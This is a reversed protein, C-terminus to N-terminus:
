RAPLKAGSRVSDVVDRIAQVVAAPEFLHIEHGSGAVVTHRSNRSLRAATAHVDRMEQPSDVGRSLVVVPRDGLLHEQALRAARLEALAAREGEASELVVDSSLMEPISAILRGELAVRREYLERPLKDFPAGTQPQRRPIRLSGPRITTRMQDATLEAIAMAKGQFFTFLRDEHAPDVLVLGAVEDPYRAQYLRVYIGGMSAGVLVYPPKEGAARLAAHLDAVVREPTAVDKRPDSWGHGARDYSCVRNTRAIEPQVLSWDIAFASAGAELIVAPAGAGTCIMHLRRSGVDIRVGPPDEIDTSQPGLAGAAALLSFLILALNV